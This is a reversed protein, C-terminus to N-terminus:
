ESKWLEKMETESLGDKRKIKLSKYIAMVREENYEWKKKMRSYISNSLGVLGGEATYISKRSPLFLFFRFFSYWPITNTYEELKSADKRLKQSVETKIEDPLLETDFYCNAYYMLDYAVVGIHRKFDSAPHLVFKIFIQGLVFAGVAYLVKM